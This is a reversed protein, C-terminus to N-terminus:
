FNFKVSMSEEVRDVILDYIAENESDSVVITAVGNIFQTSANELQSSSLISFIYDADVLVKANTPVDTNLLITNNGADDEARIRFKDDDDFIYLFPISQNNNYTYTGQIKISQEEDSDLDFELDVRKYDGQPIEFNMFEIESLNSFNIKENGEYQRDFYVDDGKEREGEFSFSELEFVIDTINLQANLASKNNTKAYFNVDTPKKWKNCSFLLSIGIIFTLAKM